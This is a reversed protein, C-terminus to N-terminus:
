EPKKPSLAGDVRALLDDLKFPKRLFDAFKLTQLASTEITQGGQATVAIVPVQTTRADDHLRRRVDWGSLGPMNIDLLILDPVRDDLKDLLSQGDSSAVVEYGADTLVEQILGAIDPEDDAIYVLNGSM